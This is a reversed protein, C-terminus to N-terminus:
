GSSQNQGANVSGDHVVHQPNTADEANSNSQIVTMEQGEDNTQAPADNDTRTDSPTAKHGWRYWFITGIATLLLVVTTVAMIACGPHSTHQADIQEISWPYCESKAVIYAGLGMYLFPIVYHVYKEVIRLVHKQRMVLFAALLWLGLLIYYVIIYVAIEAGRVQSFLPIYVGINDGGNMLTVSAVTLVGKMGAVRANDTEDEASPLLLELLKWVGLIIPLLGLFGIPESPLVLSVGFGIMSIVVIVTFGVFQGITIRLPTLAKSTASEAFFTVLVFADDINTIAFTACATGIAQGIQM